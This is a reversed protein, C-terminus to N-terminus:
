EFQGTLPSFYENLHANRIASSRGYVYGLYAPQLVQFPRQQQSLALQLNALVEAQTALQQQLDAIIAYLHHDASSM